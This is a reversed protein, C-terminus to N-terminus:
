DFCTLTPKSATEQWNPGLTARASLANAAAPDNDRFMKVVLGEGHAVIPDGGYAVVGGYGRQVTIPTAGVVASQSQAGLIMYRDYGRKIVEVAAQKVAVREAGAAGCAAAARATIRFTDQSLPVTSASACAGLALASCLIVCRM